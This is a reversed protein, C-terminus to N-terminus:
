EAMLTQLILNNSGLRALSRSIGVSEKPMYYWSMLVTAAWSMTVVSMLPPDTSSGAEGILDESLRVIRHEFNKQGEPAPGLGPLESARRYYLFCLFAVKMLASDKVDWVYDFERLM